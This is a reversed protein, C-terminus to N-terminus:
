INKRLRTLPERGFETKPPSPAAFLDGGRGRNSGTRPAAPREAGWGLPLRATETVGERVRSRRRSQAEVKGGCVRFTNEWYRDM